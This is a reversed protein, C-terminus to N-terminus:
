KERRRFRELAGGMEPEPEGLRERKRKEREVKEERAKKEMKARVAEAEPDVVNKRQKRLYRKLSKNRGRAKKKEREKEAEKGKEGGEIESSEDHEETRDVKGSVRLREIRSLRGFPVEGEVLEGGKRERRVEEMGGVEYGEYGGTDVVITDAPVKDLLGRVERERRARTGEFPDAELSDFNAEGAGPVLISSLGLSHPVTLVDTYPCWRPQSPTHGVRGTGSSSKPFSPLPHTLYLPPPVSPTFPTHIAPPAHISISSTSVVSLFGKQSWEVKAGGVGSRTRWERITGKWNRCDWVKVTGDRGSTALYRGGSSPDVSCSM